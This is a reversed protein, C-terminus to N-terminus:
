LTVSDDEGQPAPIRAKPPMSVERLRRLLLPSFPCSALLCTHFILGTQTDTDESSRRPCACLVSPWLTVFVGRLATPAHKAAPVAAPVRGAAQPRSPGRGQSQSPSGGFGAEPVSQVPRLRLGAREM